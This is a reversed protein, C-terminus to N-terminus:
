RARRATTGSIIPCPPSGDGARRGAARRSLAHGALRRGRAADRRGVLTVIGDFLDDRREAKIESSGRCSAPAAGARRSQRGGRRLLGATRAEARRARCGHAGGSARLHARGADASRARRRRGGALAALDDPLRQPDGGRGRGAAGNVSAKAGRAWGPIRLKLTSSPRSSRARGRHPHRGVVSLHQDRAAGVKGTKLAVSPRSAAM